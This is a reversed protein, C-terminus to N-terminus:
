IVGPVSTVTLHSPKKTRILIESKTRLRLFEGHHRWSLWLLFCVWRNIILHKQQNNDEAMKNTFNQFVTFSKLQEVSLSFGLSGTWQWQLWLLLLLLISKYFIVWIILWNYSVASLQNIYHLILHINSWILVLLRRYYKSNNTTFYQRMILKM